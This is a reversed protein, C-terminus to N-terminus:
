GAPQRYLAVLRTYTWTSQEVGSCTDPPDSGDPQCQRDRNVNWFTLRGIQHEHAHRLVQRVDELTIVEGTDGNVGALSSLGIHRYADRDDMGYVDRVVEQMGDMARISADGMDIDGQGFWFAMGAWAAVDLGAAAAEEVMAVGNGSFGTDLVPVTVYVQLGPNREQLLELAAVNRQRADPDAFEEGEIDLDVATLAYADVVQQYAAALEEVSDCAQGLKHVGGGGLSPIVDGGAARIDRVTRSQRSEPDFSGGGDWQPSCTSDDPAVIFALTFWRVGTRHMIDVPDPRHHSDFYYYPAAAISGPPPASTALGAPATGDPGSAHAVAVTATPLAVLVAATVALRSLQRRLRARGSDVGFDNIKM